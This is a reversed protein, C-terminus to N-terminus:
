PMGQHFSLLLCLLLTSVDHAISHLDDAVVMGRGIASKGVFCNEEETRSVCCFGDDCADYCLGYGEATDLNSWACTDALDKPPAPV